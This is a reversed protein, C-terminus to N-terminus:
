FIDYKIKGKSYLNILAMITILLISLLVNIVPLICLLFPLTEKVGTSNTSENQKALGDIGKRNIEANSIFIASGFFIITSIVVSWMYLNMFYYSLAVFGM